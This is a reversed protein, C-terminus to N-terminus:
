FTVFRHRLSREQAFTSPLTALSKRERSSIFLKVGICKPYSKNDEQIPHTIHIKKKTVVRYVELNCSIIYKNMSTSISGAQDCLNNRRSRSDLEEMFVRVADVDM